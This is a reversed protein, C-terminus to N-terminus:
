AKPYDGVWRLGSYKNRLASYLREDATILDCAMQEALAVYMADYVSRREDIAIRMAASALSSCAHLDIGLALFDRYSASAETASISPNVISRKWLVNGVESVIIDPAILELKGDGFDRLLAAAEQEYAEKIFWKVAVCRRCRLAHM